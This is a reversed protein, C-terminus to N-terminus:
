RGKIEGDKEGVGIFGEGDVMVWLGKYKEGEM